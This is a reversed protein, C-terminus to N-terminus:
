TNVGSALFGGDVVICEGTIFSAADSSLLVAVGVLEEPKGFRRLPTRMLLERGRPTDLILKSNLETPFVGPAIANVAIGDKAWECALNRTLALVGAKSVCYAAVEHFALFSGMSAINVIRGRGSNKLPDYFSQCARLIGTLNTDLLDRWKEEEINEVPQKMTYGAANVLIDVRGFRALVADRFADISPRQNVDASRCLTAVGLDEIARCVEALRDERRGAPVVIAGQAALGLALARGIGSTGGIVVAIRGSIDLPNTMETLFRYPARM